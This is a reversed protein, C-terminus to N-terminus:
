SRTWSPVTTIMIRSSADEKPARVAARATVKAVARSPDVRVVAAVSEILKTTPLLHRGQWEQQGPATALSLRYKISALHDLQRRLDLLALSLKMSAPRCNNLARECDVWSQYRCLMSDFLVVREFLHVSLVVHVCVSEDRLVVAVIGTKLSQVARNKLLMPSSAAECGCQM